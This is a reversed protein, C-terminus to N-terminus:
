RAKKLIEAYIEPYTVNDPLEDFFGIEEIEFDPLKEIQTIIGKYMISYIKKENAVFSYKCIPTLSFKTAGTEEHLERQAARDPSENEEIHGGPIEWTKRNEHRCMVIKENYKAYIVVVSPINSDDIDYFQIEM